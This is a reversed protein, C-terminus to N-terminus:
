EVHKKLYYGTRSSKAKILEKPPGTFIAHGGQNGAGPGMDIIWDGQSIVDLNHEIVIVTGGQDVMRNMLVILRNVDSMHLGTTPEDFVYIQGSNNLETALRIRQREGGSLTNLPQGLTIYDLGVDLLRDLISVIDKERFFSRADTIRMELVESINKGRLTCALVEDTFRRGQCAECKSVIPDMFALDTYTIGLGKCEPCAGASNFSFLSPNVKNDKAFLSRVLDFLGTYTAPNSRKSGRLESQDILVAEPYRQPLENHILTSKGSGAVGTVVTMVGMPITVTVNKLNHMRAHRIELSGNPTRPNAKLSPRHSLHKGTLTGSAKLGALSGEYVVKGGATGAGPGIDIVHDAIAIVDPDHEVVLVTNGKDCLRRILGNLRHVDDPHLGISPEDFIYTIDTLSSGLHRVMKVRQSEGGSLTSTQRNLTLYGLGISVLNELREMLAATVTSVQPVDIERIVEMLENVQLAACDAINMGNIRCGLVKRNLRAGNCVPCVGKSVMQGIAEKHRAAEKSERNLFSREIRPIVGEYDSSLPWGELPNPPKFGKKYLLTDWEDETYDKLKKDNDFLGTCVYRKWRFDGPRFTPFRIAGENLSKNRDILADINITKVVGLGECEPCMGQPNNFSFVDSYGVFPRGVRSYLLRLLSYIDTATGVTSRASGGIRKQDILIAVPLNELADVDPQGYHPLRHRIFSTFTENLQRQSEAAITDFVLSSKGSGSVGTFVTIKKKPISVTVDKLNNERAGIVRIHNETSKDM